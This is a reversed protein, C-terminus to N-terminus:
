QKTAYKQSVHENFSLQTDLVLDFRKKVPLLCLWVNGNNFTIPQPFTKERKRSFYLETAQKNISPTFLM